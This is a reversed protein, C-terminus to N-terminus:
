CKTFVFGNHVLLNHKCVLCYHASCNRFVLREKKGQYTDRPKGNVVATVNESITICVLQFHDQIRGDWTASYGNQWGAILYQM